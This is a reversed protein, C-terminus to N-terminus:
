RRGSSTARAARPAPATISVSNGRLFFEVVQGLGGRRLANRAEEGDLLAAVLEAGEAHHGVRAAGLVAAGGGGDEGLRPAHRALARALDRQEALVDVGPVALAEPRAASSSASATMGADLPQAVGGGVRAVHVRRQDGAWRSM